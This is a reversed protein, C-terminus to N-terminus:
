AGTHPSAAGTTHLVLSHTYILGPDAWGPGVRAVPGKGPLLIWSTCSFMVGKSSVTRYLQLHSSAESGVM